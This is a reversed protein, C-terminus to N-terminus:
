GGELIVVATAYSQSHSLSLHIAEINLRQAMEKGYGALHIHPQQRNDHYIEIDLWNIRGIGQGFAKAVAEKAAFRVAFSAAANGKQSCYAIEDATYIRKAFGKHRELAKAIREIEIIDTGIGKIM